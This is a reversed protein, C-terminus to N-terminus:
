TKEFRALERDVHADVLTELDAGLRLMGSLHLAALGHVSAWLLHAVVDPDGELVGDDIAAAVVDRMVFWGRAEEVVETQPREKRDLEFLIRYGHPEDVAFGVYAYTMARLRDTHTDHSKAAAAIADAFRNAAALRVTDFIAAKNEFYRYPTMPSCGLDKALARMTVGAYGQEAFLRTAAECLSDRFADLQDQSLPTRPM